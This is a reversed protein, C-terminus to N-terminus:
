WVVRKREAVSGRRVSRGGGRSTGGLPLLDGSGNGGVGSVNGLNSKYDM